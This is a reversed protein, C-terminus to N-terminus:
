PIFVSEHTDCISMYLLRLDQCKTAPFLRPPTSVHSAGDTLFIHDPNAKVGDRKSIFEAVDNRVISLGKSESYAGTGRRIWPRNYSSFPSGISLM